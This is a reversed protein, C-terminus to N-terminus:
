RARLRPTPAADQRVYARPDGGSQDEADGRRPGLLEVQRVFEEVDNVLADPQADEGDGGLGPSHLEAKQPGRQIQGCAVEGLVQCHQLLGPQHLDLFAILAFAGTRPDV